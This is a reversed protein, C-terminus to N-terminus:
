NIVLTLNVIDEIVLLKLNQDNFRVKIYLIESSFTKLFIFNAPSIELLRGFLKSCIYVFSKSRTIKFTQCQIHDMVYNWNMLEM